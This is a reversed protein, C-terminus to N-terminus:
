REGAIELAPHNYDGARIIYAPPFALAMIETFSKFVPFTPTTNKLPNDITMTVAYFGRAKSKGDGSRRLVWEKEALNACRISSELWVNAKPYRGPQILYHLFLEGYHNVALRLECLRVYSANVLPLAGPEIIYINSDIDRTQKDDPVIRLWAVARHAPNDSVRFFEEKSPKRVPIYLPTAPTIEKVVAAFNPAVSLREMLALHEQLTADVSQTLDGDDPKRVLDDPTPQLAAVGSGSSEQALKGIIDDPTPHPRGNARKPRERTEM